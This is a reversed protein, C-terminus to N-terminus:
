KLKKEKHQIIKVYVIVSRTDKTKKEKTPLQRASNCRRRPDSTGTQPMNKTIGRVEFYKIRLRAGKTTKRKEEDREKKIIAETM